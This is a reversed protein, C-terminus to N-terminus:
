KSMFFEGVFVNCTKIMPIDETKIPNGDYSDFLEMDFEFSYNDDSDSEKNISSFPIISFQFTKRGENNRDVYDVFNSWDEEFNSDSKFFYYQTNTPSDHFCLKIDSYVSM